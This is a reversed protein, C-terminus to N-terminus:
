FDDVIRLHVGPSFSGKVAKELMWGNMEILKIMQEEKLALDALNM